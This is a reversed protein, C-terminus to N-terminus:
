RHVFLQLFDNTLSFLRSPDNPTKTRNAYKLMKWKEICRRVSRIVFRGQLQWKYIVELWCHM